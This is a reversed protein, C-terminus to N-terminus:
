GLYSTTRRPSGRHKSRERAEVSRQLSGTRGGGEGRGTHLPACRPPTAVYMAGTLGQEPANTSEGRGHVTPMSESGARGARGAAARALSGPRGDQAHSRGAIRVGGQTTCAGWGTRRDQLSRRWGHRGAQGHSAPPRGQGALSGLLGGHHGRAGAPASSAAAAAGHALSCWGGRRRGGRRRCGGGGDQGGRHTTHHQLDM